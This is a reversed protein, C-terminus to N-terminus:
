KAAAAIAMRSLGRGVMLTSDTTSVRAQNQTVSSDQESSCWVAGSPPFSAYVNRSSSVTDKTTPSTPSGPLLWPPFPNQGKSGKVCAWRGKATTPLTSSTFTPFLVTRALCYGQPTTCPSHGTHTHTHTHTHAHQKCLPM